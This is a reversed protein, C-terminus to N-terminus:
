KEQTSDVNAGIINSHLEEPSLFPYMDELTPSVMTGDALIKSSLKPVFVYNPDVIVECLMPHESSLVQGIVESVLDPKELKISEIGFAASIKTFDPTTLGSDTDVGVMYGNFFNNQTQRISVYGGNNIVFIKIPLNHHRITQLEQLNMMISGDGAICITRRRGGAICAGISAPLDYGMSASGSNSFIRQGDKIKLTQFACIFASANAMVCIDANDSENMQKGLECVFHYVNILEGTQRYEDVNKCSYKERRIKCWNMWEPLEITPSESTLTPLFDRLDALIAL